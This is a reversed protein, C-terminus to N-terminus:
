LNSFLGQNIVWPTLHFGAAFHNMRKEIQYGQNIEKQADNVSDQIRIRIGLESGSGPSGHWYLAVHIRIWFVPVGSVFLQWFWTYIILTGSGSGHPDTNFRSGQIRIRIPLVSASGPCDFHHGFLPFLRHTEPLSCQGNQQPGSPKLQLRFTRLWHLLFILFQFLFPFIKAVFIEKLKLWLFVQIRIQIRIRISRFHQTRIRISILVSGFCQFFLSVGLCTSPSTAPATLGTQIPLNNNCCVIASYNGLIKV